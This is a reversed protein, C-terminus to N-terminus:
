RLPGVFLRRQHNRSARTIFVRLLGPDVSLCGYSSEDASFCEFMLVDDAVTIVPDYPMLKRWLGPNNKRLYTNLERRSKWYRKLAKRYRTQLDRSPKRGRNKEIEERKNKEAERRIASERQKESKKWQEYQTKDRREFTLDNIVVDHLASIAERFRLPQKLPADFDVRDRDLNPAMQLIRGGSSRVMGSRGLYKLHLNM